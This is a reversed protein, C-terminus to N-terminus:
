ILGIIGANGFNSLTTRIDYAIGYASTDPYASQLMEKIESVSRKGDCLNWIILGISNITVNCSEDPSYITFGEDTEEIKCGAVQKPCLLNSRNIHAEEFKYGFLEIDRAYIDGAMDRLEKTYYESYDLKIDGIYQDASRNVHELKYPQRLKNCVYKFDSNLNEFRGIFDVAIKGDIELFLHQPSLHVIQRGNLAYNESNWAEKLRYNTRGKFIDKKKWMDKILLNFPYKDKIKSRKIWVGLVHEYVSVLRDWPNRVFGWKFYSAFDFDVADQRNELKGDKKTYFDYITNHHNGRNWDLREMSTGACKPVHIFLSKINHNIYSM